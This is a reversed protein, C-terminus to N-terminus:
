SHTCINVQIHGKLPFQGSSEQICIFLPSLLRGSASILPMITSSHTMSSLSQARSEVTKVGLIYLYERSLSKGVFDLSSGFHLERPHGSQDTNFVNDPMYNQTAIFQKTNTVFDSATKMLKETDAVNTKTVYKTIKRGVIGYCKKFHHLWHPSAKFSQIPCDLKGNEQM